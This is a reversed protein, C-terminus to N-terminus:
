SSCNPFFCFNINLPFTGIEMKLHTNFHTILIVFIHRRADEDSCEPVVRGEGTAAGGEEQGGGDRGDSGAISTAATWLGM